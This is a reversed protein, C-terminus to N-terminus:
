LLEIAAKIELLSYGYRQLAALMKLRERADEPFRPYRKEILARCNGVFDVEADELGEIAAAVADSSYGKEYLASMIRKKGWLKEAMKQAVRAADDEARLLGKAVLEEVAEAACKKDFGKSVLKIRLAKESCAGYGLLVIGKKAACWVESAHAVDDYTDTDCRGKSLGLALYQKSSIIFSERSREAGGDSVTEFAVRIEEGASMATMSTISVTM